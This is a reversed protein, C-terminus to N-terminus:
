RVYVLEGRVYDCRLIIDDWANNSPNFVFYSTVETGKPIGHYKTYGLEDKGNGRSDYPKGHTKLIILDGDRAEIQEWIETPSMIERADLIRVSEKVKSSASETSCLIGTVILLVMIFKKM